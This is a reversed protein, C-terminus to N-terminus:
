RCFVIPKRIRGDSELRKKSSIGDIWWRAQRASVFQEIPATDFYCKNKIFFQYWREVLHNHLDLSSFPFRASDEARDKLENRYQEYLEQPSKQGSCLAHVIEDYQPKPATQDDRDEKWIRITRYFYKNKKIVERRLKRSIASARTDALTLFLDEATVTYNRNLYDYCAHKLHVPRFPTLPSNCHHRLSPWLPSEKLQKYLTEDIRKLEEPCYHIGVTRGKEDKSKQFNDCLKLLDHERAYIQKGM